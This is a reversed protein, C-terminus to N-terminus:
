FQGFANELIQVQGKDNVLAVDFRVETDQGNPEGALFESATAFIRQMQRRSVRAAAREFTKSKKVEVFVVGAGNRAVLDIEGSKGRWRKRSIPLGRAIYDRSVSEEAAIGAQYSVMGSM